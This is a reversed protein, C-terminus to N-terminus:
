RRGRYYQDRAYVQFPEITHEIRGSAYLVVIELGYDGSVPFDTAQIPVTVRAPVGAEEDGRETVVCSRTVITNDAKKLRAEVTDTLGLQLPAGERWLEVVPDLIFDGATLRYLM